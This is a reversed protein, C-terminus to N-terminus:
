LFIFDFMWRQAMNVLFKGRNSSIIIAPLLISPRFPEQLEMAMHSGMDMHDLSSDM